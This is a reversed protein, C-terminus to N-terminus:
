VLNSLLLFPDERLPVILPMMSQSVKKIANDAIKRSQNQQLFEKDQASLLGSKYPILDKTVSKLSFNNYQVKLNNFDETNLLNIIKNASQLAVKEDDSEVVINIVSSFKDSIKNVPWQQGAGNIDILSILDTQSHLPTKFILTAVVGLVVAIGFLIKKVLLKM